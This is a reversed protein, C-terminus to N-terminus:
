SPQDRNALAAKSHCGSFVDLSADYVTTSIDLLGLMSHFLNDHSLPEDRHNRLCTSDLRFDRRYASSLWLLMPVRTQVDPAVFYPTGHLYLGYEGLSEGHDSVYLLATDFQAAYGDLLEIVQSLFFDTYYITNDYSNVIEERSCDGFEDSRCDPTFRRFAEPYRRYYAPGHSGNQHLVIVTDQETEAMAQKLQDLLVSDLCEGDQCQGAIDLGYASWTRSHECVGKCGANNDFWLTRIDAHNM